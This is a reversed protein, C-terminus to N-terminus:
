EKTFSGSKEFWELFTEAAAESNLIAIGGAMLIPIVPLRFRYSIGYGVAALLLLLTLQTM